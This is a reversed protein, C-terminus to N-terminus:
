QHLGHDWLDHISEEPVGHPHAYFCDACVCLVSDGHWSKELTTEQYSGVYCVQYGTGSGPQPVCM